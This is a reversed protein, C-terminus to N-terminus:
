RSGRMRSVPADYAAPFPDPSKEKPKALYNKEDPAKGREGKRGRIEINM